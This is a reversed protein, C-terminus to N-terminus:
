RQEIADATAEAGEEVQEANDRVAEAATDARQEVVAGANEGREEIADARAEMGDTTLEADERVADAEKEAPTQNCAALGFSAVGAMIMLINRM